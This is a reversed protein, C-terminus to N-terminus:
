GELIKSYAFIVSESILEGDSTIKCDYHCFPPRSKTCEARIDLKMGPKAPKRFKCKETGLLAVELKVNDIDKICLYLGLCSAQAMMEVQVVGPVIPNGPFHGALVDMEEKVDYIAEVVCGVLDKMSIVKPFSERNPLYISKVEDIFLFPRRHPLIKKVQESTLGM